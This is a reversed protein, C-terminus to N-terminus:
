VSRVVLRIAGLVRDFEQTEQEMQKRGAVTLQYFRARRNRDSVGWKTTVWGKVSLRNLAPYLSGDEINLVDGSAQRIRRAIGYGHLPGGRLSRLIMLYLTGPLLEPAVREAM